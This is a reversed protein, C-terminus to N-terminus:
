KPADLHAIRFSGSVQRACTGILINLNGVIFTAAPGDSLAITFKEIAVNSRDAKLQSGISVNNEIKVDGSLDSFDFGGGGICVNGRIASNTLTGSFKFTPMRTTTDDAARQM